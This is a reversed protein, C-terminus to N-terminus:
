DGNAEHLMDSIFHVLEMREGLPPKKGVDVHTLLPTVLADLLHGDSDRALWLTEVAPIVSDESGHLLLVTAHLGFLHGHPSVSAMEDRHRVISALL